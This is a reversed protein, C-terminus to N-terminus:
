KKLSYEQNANLDTEPNSNGSPGEGLLRNLQAQEIEEVNDSSVWKSFHMKSTQSLGKVKFIKDQERFWIAIPTEYSFLVEREGWILNNMNKNTQILKM